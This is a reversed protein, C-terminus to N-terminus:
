TPLKAEGDNELLKKVLKSPAHSIKEAGSQEMADKVRKATDADESEVGVLVSGAKFAEEYFKLEKEPIAAGVMGGVISGATAGAGGGLVAAAVPGAVLLGLSAGGTAIATTAAIGAIIAGAAGGGAAGVAFGEPAKSHPEHKIGHRDFEDSAVWNIDALPVGSVELM